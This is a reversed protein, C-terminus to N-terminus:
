SGQSSTAVPTPGPTTVSTVCTFIDNNLAQKTTGPCCVQGLAFRGEGGHTVCAPACVPTSLQKKVSKGAYSIVFEKADARFPVYSEVTGSTSMAFAPATKGEIHIEPNPNFEYSAIITGARNKVELKGRGGLPDEVYPPLVRGAFRGVVERVKPTDMLPNRHLDKMAVEVKFFCSDAGYAPPACRGAVCGPLCPTAKRESKNSTACSVEYLVRGSPDCSDTTTVTVKGNEQITVAGVKKPDNTPDTDICSSVPRCAGDQCGKECPIAKMNYVVSASPCYFEWVSNGDPSCRDLDQFTRGSPISFTVTSKTFADVGDPDVCSQACAARITLLGLTLPILWLRLDRM